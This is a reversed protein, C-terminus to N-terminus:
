CFPDVKDLREPKIYNKEIKQYHLILFWIGPFACFIMVIPAALIFVDWWIGLIDLVGALFWPLAYWKWMVACAHNYDLIDTVWESKVETGSWFAVPKHSKGAYIGLGLFIAGCSWCCSVMIIMGVIGNKDM